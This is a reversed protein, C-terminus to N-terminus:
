RDRFCRRAPPGPLIVVLVPLLREGSRRAVSPGAPQGTLGHRTRRHEFPRATVAIDDSARRRHSGRHGLPLRRRSRVKRHRGDQSMERKHCVLTLSRCSPLLKRGKNWGSERRESGVEAPRERGCRGGQFCGSRPLSRRVSRASLPEAGIARRLPIGLRGRKAQASRRQAGGKGNRRRSGRWPHSIGRGKVSAVGAKALHREAHVHRTEVRFHLLWVWPPLM